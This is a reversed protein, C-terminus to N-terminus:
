SESKDNGDNHDQDDDIDGSGYDWYSAYDDDPTLSLEIVVCKGNCDTCDRQRRLRPQDWYTHFPAGDEHLFIDDYVDDFTKDHYYITEWRRGTYLVIEVYHLMYCKLPMEDFPYM